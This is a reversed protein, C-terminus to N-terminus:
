ENDVKMIKVSVEQEDLSIIAYTAGMKNRPFALSGPCLVHVNDQILYYPQHTHGHIIIDCNNEKALSALSSPNLPFFHGHFLYIQHNFVPIIAFRKKVFFDCNGKVTIFPEMEMEHRESDGADLFMQAQPHRSILDQLKDIQRHIDSTVLIQMTMGVKSIFIKDHKRSKKLCILM